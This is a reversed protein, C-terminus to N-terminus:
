RAHLDVVMQLDVANDYMHPLADFADDSRGRRKKSGTM